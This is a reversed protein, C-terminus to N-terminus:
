EKPDIVGSKCKHKWVHVHDALINRRWNFELSWEKDQKTCNGVPAEAVTPGELWMADNPM